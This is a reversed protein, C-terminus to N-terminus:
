KEKSDVMLVIAKADDLTQNLKEKFHYHGPIDIVNIKKSISETEGTISGPIKVELAGDTKNIETSSVTM